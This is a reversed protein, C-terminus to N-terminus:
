ICGPKRHRLDRGGRRIERMLPTREDYATAPYAMADFFEGTDDLFTVRLDALRRAEAWRDPMVTLFRSGYMEDLAARVRRLVLDGKIAAPATEGM